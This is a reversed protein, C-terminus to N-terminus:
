LANKLQIIQISIPNAVNLSQIGMFYKGVFYPKILNYVLARVNLSVKSLPLLSETPCMFLHCLEGLCFNMKFSM